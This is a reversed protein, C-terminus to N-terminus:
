KKRKEFQVVGAERLSCFELGNQGGAHGIVVHDLVPIDVIWGAEVVQRTIRIDEASPSPDGSPHNHALIVAASSTRIAHRFVERPHVLSADLLGRTVDLPQGKLRNHSDLNLVWFVEGDLTRVTERLLEVADGPTRIRPQRPAAEETLRRGLELGAILIQSKVPGLGHFKALEGPPAKAINTLSGYEALLAEALHMVNLGKVGSRLLVALLAEDSANRVGVREIMERPRMREPLERMPRTIIYEPSSGSM